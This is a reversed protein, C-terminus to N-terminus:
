GIRKGHNSSLYCERFQNIARHRINYVNSVNTHWLEAVEKVEYGRLVLLNVAEAYRHNPMAELVMRVDVRDVVGKSPYCPCEEPCEGPLSSFRKRHGLFFRWAVTSLWTRLSCGNRADFTRIRRWDDQALFLYLESVMEDYEVRGNFVKYRITELMGRLEGYFFGVIIEEDYFDSLKMLTFNVKNVDKHFKLQNTVWCAAFIKLFIGPGNAMTLM